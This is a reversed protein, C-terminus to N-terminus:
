GGEEGVRGRGGGGRGERGDRVREKMRWGDEPPDEGKIAEQHRPKMFSVALRWDLLESPDEVAFPDVTVSM